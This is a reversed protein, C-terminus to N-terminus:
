TPFRRSKAFRNGERGCHRFGAPSGLTVEAPPVDWPRRGPCPASPWSGGSRGSSCRFMRAGLAGLTGLSGRARELIANGSVYLFATVGPVVIRRPHAPSNGGKKRRFSEAIAAALFVVLYELIGLYSSRENLSAEM